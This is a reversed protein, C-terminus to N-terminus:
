SRALSHDDRDTSIRQRGNQNSKRNGDGGTEKFRKIANSVSAQSMKTRRAAEAQTYGEKVLIRAVTTTGRDNM